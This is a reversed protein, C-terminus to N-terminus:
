APQTLKIQLLGHYAEMVIAAVTVGSISPQLCIRILYNVAASYHELFLQLNQMAHNLLDHYDVFAEHISKLLQLPQESTQRGPKTFNKHYNSSADPQQWQRDYLVSLGRSLHLM